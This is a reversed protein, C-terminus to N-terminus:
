GNIKASKVHITKGGKRKMELIIRPDSVFLVISYMCFNNVFNHKNVPNVHFM